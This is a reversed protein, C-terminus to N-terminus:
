VRFSHLIFNVEIIESEEDLSKVLMQQHLREVLRLELEASTGLPTKVDEGSTKLTTKLLNVNTHNHDDVKVSTELTSKLAERVQLEDFELAKASIDLLRQAHLNFEVSVKFDYQM